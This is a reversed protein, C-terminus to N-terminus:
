LVSLVGTKRDFADLIRVRTNSHMLEPLENRAFFGCEAIEADPEWTTSGTIEAEISIVLDDQDPKSYIGVLREPRVLYGTEERAERVLAQLPSEGAEM